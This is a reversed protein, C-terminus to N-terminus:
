TGSRAASRRRAPRRTPLPAKLMQRILITVAPKLLQAARVGQRVRTAVCEALAEV